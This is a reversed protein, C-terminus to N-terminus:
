GRGRDAAGASAERVYFPWVMNYRSNTGRLRYHLSITLLGATEATEVIEIGDVAVRPEFALIADLIAGRMRTLMSQDIEEFLFRRLSAGYGERMAREGPETGFLIALSQAVDEAGSVMEVDRGGAGFRPPFAWGTGLFPAETPM